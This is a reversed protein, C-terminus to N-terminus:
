LSTSAKKKKKKQFIKVDKTYKKEFNEKHKQYYKNVM